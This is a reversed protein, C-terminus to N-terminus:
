SSSIKKLAMYLGVTAADMWRVQKRIYEIPTVCDKSGGTSMNTRVILGNGALLETEGEILFFHEPDKLLGEEDVYIVDTSNPFYYGVEINGKVAAQMDALGTVEVESVRGKEADIKIAKM